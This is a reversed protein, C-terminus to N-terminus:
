PGFRLLFSAWTLGAGVGVVAVDDSARWKEWNMSIVSAASAAGTNGYWEVNRHHREPPLACQRCVVELMRLNAQHGVFHFDREPDSVGDRLRVVGEITKKIAFKQVAHGEQGFHLAWPVVVKMAGSPDSDLQPEIVQAAGPEINSVVGAACGDGWLVAASRDEYDVTRTLTDAAVVLVFPPLSGERMGSLFKMQAFFSTCASAIDFVPVDIGLVRAVQAAQAPAVMDPCSTGCVVMGIDSRDLGARALAMEAARGGLDAQTELAAEHAGRTDRNRTERVYDLPLVTRRTRIGVRDLIWSDSTGIDLSELFANTIETTPHAHGLAHIYLSL